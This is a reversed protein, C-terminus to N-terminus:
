NVGGVGIGGVSVTTPTGKSRGRSAFAGGLAAAVGVGLVLLLRSSARSKKAKVPTSYREVPGALSSVNAQSMAASGALGGYNADVVVTYRGEIANPQFPTMQALGDDNTFAVAENSGNDFQGGPGLEPLQFRVRAGRVPKGDARVQITAPSSSRSGARHRADRGELVSVELGGSAQAQAAIAFALTLALARGSTASTLTLVM